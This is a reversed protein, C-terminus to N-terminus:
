NERGREGNRWRVERGKLLAAEEEPLLAEIATNGVIISNSTFDLRIGFKRMFPVDLIADCRDIGIM